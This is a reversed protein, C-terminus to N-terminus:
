SASDEVTEAPESAATEEEEVSNEEETEEAAEETAKPAPLGEGSLLASVEQQVLPIQEMSLKPNQISFVDGSKVHEYILTDDDPGDIPRFVRKRELMLALIYRANTHEPLNQEVLYRLLGEADDKKLTEPPPPLPPEYKSKWFSFPQINENRAAWAEESLDERRFGEAEDYLLTYFSEGEAFERETVACVQARGKINWDNNM